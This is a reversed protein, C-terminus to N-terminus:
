SVSESERTGDGNDKSREAARARNLKEAREARRIKEYNTGNASRPQRPKLKSRLEDLHRSHELISQSLSLFGQHTGVFAKARSHLMDLWQSEIRIQDVLSMSRLPHEALKDANRPRGRKVEIGPVVTEQEVAM